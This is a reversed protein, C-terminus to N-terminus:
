KSFSSYLELLQVTIHEGLINRLVHHLLHTASHNRTILSRKTSEPILMYEYQNFDLSPFDSVVHIIENNEKRTSFYIRLKKDIELAVPVQAHTNMWGFEGSPSFILGKKLWKM